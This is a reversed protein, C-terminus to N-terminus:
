KESVSPYPSPNKAKVPVRTKPIPAVSPGSKQIGSLISELLADSSENSAKSAGSPRVLWMSVITKCVSVKKVM